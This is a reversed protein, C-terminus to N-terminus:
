SFSCKKLVRHRLFFISHCHPNLQSKNSFCTSFSFAFYEQNVYHIIVVFFRGFGNFKCFRSTPPYLFFFTSHFQYHMGVLSHSNTISKELQATFMLNRLLHNCKKPNKERSKNSFLWIIHM